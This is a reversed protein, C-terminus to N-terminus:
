GVANIMASPPVVIPEVREIACTDADHRTGFLGLEAIQLMSPLAYSNAADLNVQYGMDEFTGISMRSILRVAGSM